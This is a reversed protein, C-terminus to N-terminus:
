GWGPRNISQGSANEKFRQLFGTVNLSLWVRSSFALRGEAPVYISYIFSRSEWSSQILGGDSGVSGGGFRGDEVEQILRCVGAGMGALLQLRNVQLMARKLTVGAMYSRDTTKLKTEEGRTERQAYGLSLGLEGPLARIVYEAQVYPTMAQGAPAIGKAAIEIGHRPLFATKLGKSYDLSHQIIRFDEARIKVEKTGVLDARCVFVGKENQYSM